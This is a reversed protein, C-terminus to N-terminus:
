TAASILGHEIRFRRQMASAYGAHHTVLVLATRHAQVVQQLQEMVKDSTQEDLNGTPEDALIVRPRNILARAIAVRQREGGSLQSPFSLLRDGLSLEELLGAARQNAQKPAMGAIRGALAVNEVANLEPILYFSQFVFGIFAARRKAIRRETLSGLRTGQWEVEGADAFEIGALLNLLTSKGSGSEGRISITEGEVVDLSCGRLVEIRRLGSFFAKHLDVARLVVAHEKQEQGSM